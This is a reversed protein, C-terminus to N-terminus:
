QGYILKAEKEPKNIPFLLIYRLNKVDLRMTLDLSDSVKFGLVVNGTHCSFDGKRIKLFEGQSAKKVFECFGILGGLEKFKSDVKFNENNKYVLKVGVPDSELSLAQKLAQFTNM